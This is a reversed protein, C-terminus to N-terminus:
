SASELRPELGVLRRLALTMAAESRTHSLFTLLLTEVDSRVDARAVEAQLLVAASAAYTLVDSAPVDAIRREIPEPLPEELEASPPPAIAPPSAPAASEPSATQGSDIAPSAPPARMEVAPPQAEPSAQGADVEVDIDLEEEADLSTAAGTTRGEAVFLASADRGVEPMAAPTEVVDRARRTERFLRALARQAAAHNLPILAATLEASLARLGASGAREAVAVVAPSPSHSLALLSALLDRLAAEVEPESMWGEPHARVEGADNLALNAASVRFLRAELQRTALLVIYGAVEPPVAALRRRAAETVLDLSIEMLSAM